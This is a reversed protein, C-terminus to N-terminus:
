RKKVSKAQVMLVALTKRDLLKEALPAVTARIRETTDVEVEEPFLLNGLKNQTLRKKEAEAILTLDLYPLVKHKAWKRLANPAISKKEAEYKTTQRFDKLWEEFDNKLQQDSANIDVTLISCCYSEISKRPAVPMYPFTSIFKDFSLDSANEQNNNWVSAFRLDFLVTDTVSRVPMERKDNVFIPQDKISEILEKATKEYHPHMWGGVKLREALDNNILISLRLAQRKELQFYWENIDFTEVADYNSLKFWSAEFAGTM